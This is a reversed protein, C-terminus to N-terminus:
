VSASHALARKETIDRRRERDIETPVKESPHCLELKNNLLAKEEVLWFGRLIRTRLGWV